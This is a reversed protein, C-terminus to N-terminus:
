RMVEDARRRREMFFKVADEPLADHLSEVGEGVRLLDAPRISAAPRDLGRTSVRLRRVEGELVGDMRRDVGVLVVLDDEGVARFLGFPEKVVDLGLELLVGREPLVEALELTADPLRRDDEERVAHLDLGEARPLLDSAAAVFLPTGVKDEAVVEFVVLVDVGGLLPLLEPIPKVLRDRLRSVGVRVDDIDPRQEM